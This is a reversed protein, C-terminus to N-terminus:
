VVEDLVQPNNAKLASDLKHKMAKVSRHYTMIGTKYDYRRAQTIGNLCEFMNWWEDRNNLNELLLRESRYPSRWYGQVTNNHEDVGDPALNHMVDIYEYFPKAIKRLENMRKRNVKYKKLKPMEQMPKDLYDFKYRENAYVAYGDYTADANVNASFGRPVLESSRVGYCGKGTIARIFLQTSLTNYGCMSINYHTPYFEVINSHHFGAVFVEVGDRIEHKLWKTADNRKGIRRVSQDGGRIPTISNFLERAHNYGHIRPLVNADIHFAM